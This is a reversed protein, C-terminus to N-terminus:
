GIKYFYIQTSYLDNCKIVKYPKWNPIAFTHTIVYSNKQLEKEFKEKLKIMAEPYLYCIILQSNHFSLNFFNQYYIFVNKKRQILKIVYSVIFPILSLEVGIIRLNKYKKHLVWLLGGWGSGLEYIPGIKLEPLHKEIEKRVKFSTPTPTIGARWIDFLIIVFCIFFFLFVIISIM